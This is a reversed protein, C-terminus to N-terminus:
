ASFSRYFFLLTDRCYHLLPKDNSQPCHAIQEHATAGHLTLDACRFCRTLATSGQPPRQRPQAAQQLAPAAADTGPPATASVFGKGRRM